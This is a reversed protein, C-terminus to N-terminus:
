VLLITFSKGKVQIYYKMLKGTYIGDACGVDLIREGKKLFKKYVRLKKELYHKGAKTEGQESYDLDSM